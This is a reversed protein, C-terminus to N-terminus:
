SLLTTLRCSVVIALTLLVLGMLLPFSTVKLRLIERVVSVVLIARLVFDEIKHKTIKHRQDFDKILPKSDFDFGDFKKKMNLNFFPM